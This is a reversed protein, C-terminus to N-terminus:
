SGKNSQISGTLYRDDWMAALFERCEAGALQLTM